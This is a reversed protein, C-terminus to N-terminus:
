EVPEPHYSEAAHIAPSDTGSMAALHKICESIAQLLLLAFAVLIMAKLPYIPLGGLQPFREGRLWSERVSPWTVYLGMLCFPILFLLHGFFNVVARRRENWRGYLFDVRVNENRLLIYSFGLFFTLSFMYSLGDQAANSSLNTQFLPGLYRTLMNYVGLLTLVIVIIGIIKGIQVILGDILQSIRLLAQVPPGVKRLM